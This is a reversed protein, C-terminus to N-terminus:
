DNNLDYSFGFGRFPILDHIYQKVFLDVKAIQSKPVYVIDAPRLMLDAEPANGNLVQQLNVQFPVPKNDSGKRIIITSEPQASDMFGGSNMVAQLVTMNGALPLVGPKDVEGGVYVNQNALSVVIVTIEPDKLKASYLKTLHEDLGQPTLGAATVEDVMQLSIKGDPRISQQYDLEPTFRFKVDIADGPGLVVNREAPSIDQTLAIDPPSLKTSSACATVSLFLVIAALKVYM